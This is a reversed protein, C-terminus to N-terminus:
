KLELMKHTSTEYYNIAIFLPPIPFIKQSGSINGLFSKAGWRRFFDLLLPMLGVKFTHLKKRKLNKLISMKEYIKQVDRVCHGRRPGFLMFYGSQGPIKWLMCFIAEVGNM